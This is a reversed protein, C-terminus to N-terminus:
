LYHIYTVHPYNARMGIIRERRQFDLGSGDDDDADDRSFCAQCQLILFLSDPLFLSLLSLSLPFSHAKKLCTM